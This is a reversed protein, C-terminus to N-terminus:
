AVFFFVTKHAPCVWIKRIPLNLFFFFNELIKYFWGNKSWFRSIKGSLKQFYTLMNEWFTEAFFTLNKPQFKLTKLTMKAVLFLFLFLCVCLFLFLRVSQGVRSPLDTRGYFLTNKKKKKKKKKTAKGLGPTFLKSPAFQILNRLYILIIQIPQHGNRTSQVGPLHVKM